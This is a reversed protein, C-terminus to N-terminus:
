RRARHQPAMHHKDGMVMVRGILVEFLAKFLFIAVPIGHTYGAFVLTYFRLTEEYELELLEAELNWITSLVKVNCQVM